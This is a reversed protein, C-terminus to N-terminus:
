PTPGAPAGAGPVPPPPALSLLALALSYRTAYDRVRERGPPFLVRKHVESPGSACLHVLGVPKADDSSGGSPGAIGTIGLGIQAGTRAKIGRALARAVEESVAGHARILEPPVDALATKAENAYAVVGTEFWASSGPVSTILASVLGGTCSEAVAIKFGRRALQAGLHVALTEDDHGYVFTGLAARANAEARALKAQASAADAGQAVLIVHTESSEVRTSLRVESLDATRLLSDIRSETTGITHLVRSRVVVGSRLAALRPVVSADVIARYEGPVGPLLFVLARGTQLLVPPATGVPNDLVLAGEPIYAVRENNPTLAYGRSALRERIRRLTEEDLVLKKRFARAAAAATLDDVTPGLGGSVVVVDAREAAARLHLVITEEDDPIVASGGLQLGARLLAAGLYAANSDVTEGRLLEDGIAVTEIRPNTANADSM